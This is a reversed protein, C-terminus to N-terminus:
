FSDVRVPALTELLRIIPGTNVSPSSRSNDGDDCEMDESNRYHQMQSDTPPVQIVQIKSELRNAQVNQRAMATSEADIESALWKWENASQHDEIDVSPACFLLPYICTAGTGLDIGCHSHTKVKSEDPQFYDPNEM